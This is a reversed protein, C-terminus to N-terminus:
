IPDEAIRNDKDVKNDGDGDDRRADEVDEHLPLLKNSKELTPDEDEDEPADDKVAENAGIADAEEKNVEIIIGKNADEVLHDIIFPAKDKDMVTIRPDM